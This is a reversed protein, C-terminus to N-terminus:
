EGLEMVAEAVRASVERPRENITSGMARVTRIQFSALWGNRLTDRAAGHYQSGDCEVAVIGLRGGKLRRVLAFDIRFRVFAMQPVIFLDGKPPLGDTTTDCVPVPFTEVYPGYDECVLWPLLRKEIPSTCLKVGGWVIGRAKEIAAKADMGHFTARRSLHMAATDFNMRFGGSLDELKTRDKVGAIKNAADAVVDGLSAGTAIRTDNKQRRHRKDQEEAMREYRAILDGEPSM